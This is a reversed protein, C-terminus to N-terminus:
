WDGDPRRNDRWCTDCHEPGMRMRGCEPCPHRNAELERAWERLVDAFRNFLQKLM